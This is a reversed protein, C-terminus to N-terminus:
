VWESIDEYRAVPVEIQIGARAIANKHYRYEAQEKGSGVVIGGMEPIVFCIMSM